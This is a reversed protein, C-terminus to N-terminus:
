LIGEKKLQQATRYSVNVAERQPVPRAKDLVRLVRRHVPRTRTTQLSDMFAEQMPTIFEPRSM